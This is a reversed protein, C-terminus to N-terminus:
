PRAPLLAMTVAVSVPQTQQQTLAQGAATGDHRGRQFTEHFEEIEIVRDTTAATADTRIKVQCTCTSQMSILAM